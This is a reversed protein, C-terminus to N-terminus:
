GTINSFDEFTGKRIVKGNEMMMQGNIFVYKINYDKNIILFDAFYGPKISGRVRDIGLGKAVNLTGFKLAEDLTFIGKKALTTIQRFVTDCPSAGIKLLHGESDYSSWSGNGDSTMTVKSLNADNDKLIGFLESVPAINGEDDATIDIYGGKKNFEICDYFLEKKRGVHTPRFHTIPINYKEIIEYVPNISSNGNGMHMTVIGPKGSLMGGLRAESAIRALEEVQLASSRHDSYAIKVGIIEDIFTIDRKISGTINPSPYSYAGTLCMANLGEEKLAKTKAVLNEVSRTTSDTGLLGVATTVGAKILTSLNVEPVRTKFSGEGGGGTIHIHQDIIGPTLIKGSGDIIKMNKLNYSIEDKIEIIRDNCILIDKKGLYEPSYIEINKILTFM